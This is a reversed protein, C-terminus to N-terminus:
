DECKSLLERVIEATTKGDTSITVDAASEYLSRRKEMLGAIYEVNMNGNLLPRNTSYRVRKYITEPTASLFVITGSKKMNAVNETRLVAGGGCSVIKGEQGAIREVLESELDRFHIEGYQAFIENITTGQEAEITEDMEMLQGKTEEALLRGITSKGVGMFGILYINRNM